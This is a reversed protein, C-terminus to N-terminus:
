FQFYIFATPAFYGVLLMWMLLAYYGTWRVARYKWIKPLWGSQEIYEVFFLFVTSIFILVLAKRGIGLMYFSCYDSCRLFHFADSGWQTGLRYIITLAESLNAARFFIWAFTALIFTTGIQLFARSAGLLGIKHAFSDRREKTWLGISIYLGFILGMLVYNWGAGHWVGTLVFTVIIAAYLWGLHTSYKWALPLYVYDRFWSSLSIHWRRWFEAVSRSFYPQKFNQVLEVGFMRASGVAIDSYGSFDAYLQISFAFVAILLMSADATGSRAYVFNVLIALNNAIVIKKFFGWAMLRLGSIVQTYNFQQIAKLQPILQAPREIPGAVLQPFFMVYLAYTLYNREAKYRGKYVEIIYALSQFIHFSLGLPLILSLAGLSYNWHLVQALAAINDNFFNFYKFVFLMGVNSLISVYLYVKKYAGGRELGFALFYDVTILFFLILIYYPVFAMYFYCSALLLLVPRM